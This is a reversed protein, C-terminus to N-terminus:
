HTQRSYKFYLVGYNAPYDEVLQEYEHTGDFIYKMDDLELLFYNWESKGKFTEAILNKPKVINCYGSTDYIYICGSENAPTAYKFDLGGNGSFMMHNYAPSTGILNLVDIICETDQWKSSSQGFPFLNKNLFDWDSKQSATFDDLISLYNELAM